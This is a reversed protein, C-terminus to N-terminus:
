GVRGYVVRGQQVLGHGLMSLGVENRSNEVGVMRYEAGSLEVALIDSEVSRVEEVRGRTSKSVYMACVTDWGVRRSEVGGDVRSM